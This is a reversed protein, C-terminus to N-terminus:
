HNLPNLVPRFIQQGADNTVLTAPILGKFQQTKVLHAMMQPTVKVVKIPQSINEQQRRPNLM